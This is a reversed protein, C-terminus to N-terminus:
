FSYIYRIGVELPQSNTFTFYRAVVEKHESLGIRAFGELSEKESLAYSVGLNVAGETNMRVIDATYSAFGYGLGAFAGIKKDDGFPLNYLADINIDTTNYTNGRSYKAYYRLGFEPTFFHKYGGLIGIKFGTKTFSRDIRGVVQMEYSLAHGYKHQSYSGQGGLFWASQEAVASTAVLLGLFAMILRKMKAGQFIFNASLNRAYKISM